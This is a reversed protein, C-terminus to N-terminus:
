WKNQWDEDIVLWQRQIIIIVIIIILLRRILRRGQRGTLNNQLEYELAPYSLLHLRDYHRISLKKYHVQYTMNIEDCFFYFNFLLNRIADYVINTYHDRTSPMLQRWHECTRAFLSRCVQYALNFPGIHSSVDETTRIGLRHWTRMAAVHLACCFLLLESTLMWQLM